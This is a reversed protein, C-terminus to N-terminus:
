KQKTYQEPFFTAGLTKREPKSTNKTTFNTDCFQTQTIKHKM